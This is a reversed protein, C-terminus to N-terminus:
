VCARVCARVCMRGGVCARGCVRERAPPFPAPPPPPPPTCIPPPPPPPPPTSAAPPAWRGYDFLQWTAGPRYATGNVLAEGLMLAEWRLGHGLALPHPRADTLFRLGAAACDPPNQLADLAAALGWLRGSRDDDGLRARDEPLPLYHTHHLVDHDCGAGIWDPDCECGRPSCRGHAGCRHCQGPDAPASRNHSAGALFASMWASANHAPVAPRAEPQTRRIVLRISVPDGCPRELLDLVQLEATYDGDAIFNGSADKLPIYKDRGPNRITGFVHNDIEIHLYIGLLPEEPESIDSIHTVIVPNVNPGYVYGDVPLLVQIQPRFATIYNFRVFHSLHFEPISVYGEWLGDKLDLLDM